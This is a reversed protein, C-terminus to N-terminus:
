APLAMVEFALSFAHVDGGIAPTGDPNTVTIEFFLYRGEEFSDWHLNQSPILNEDGLQTPTLSEPCKLTVDPTIKHWVIGCSFNNPDTYQNASGIRLKAICPVDQPATYQGLIVKRIVKPVDFLAVPVVGRLISTFGQPTWVPNSINEALPPTPDILSPIQSVQERFLVGGVQKLAYDVVSAGVLLQVTNCDATGTPNPIYSSLATFGTDMYYGTLFKTSLVMSQNNVCGRGASPWSIWIENTLPKFEAVMANCCQPDAKRTKDSYILGTAQRLWEPAEPAPLYQNYTYYSERSGFYHADGTSVLSDPYVLCAARNKPETYIRQFALSTNAAADVSVFCKWISKTTYIILNGNLEAAALIEEGPDLDQFNAVSDVGPAWSKPLNLDSYRVRNTLTVGNEVVNMLLMLGNYAVAVRAKTLKITNVLDPITIANAALLDYSYVNDKFNTFIVTGNLYAGHFKSGGALGTLVDVWVGTPEVLYSVESETCAFLTRNGGANEVGLMYTVPKRVTVGRQHFDFNTYILCNWVSGNFVRQGVPCILEESTPATHTVVRYTALFREFGCKRTLRGNDSAAWNQKEKFGGDPQETPRFRADLPGTLPSLGLTQWRSKSKM